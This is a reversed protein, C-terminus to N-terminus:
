NRFVVAQSERFSQIEMQVSSVEKPKHEVYNLNYGLNRLNPNSKLHWKQLSQGAEYASLRANETSAVRRELRECWENAKDFLPRTVDSSNGEQMKEAFKDWAKKYAAHGSHLYGLSDTFRKEEQALIQEVRTKDSESTINLWEKDSTNRNNGEGVGSDGEMYLAIKSPINNYGNDNLENIMMAAPFLSFFGFSIGSGKILVIIYAMLLSYTFIFLYTYFSLLNSKNHFLLSVTTFICAYLASIVPFVFDLDLLSLLNKMPFLLLIYLMLSLM